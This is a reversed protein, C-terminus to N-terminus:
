CGAVTEASCRDRGLGGDARDQGPGGILLDEGIWGKLVDNGGEGYASVSQSRLPGACTTRSGDFRVHDDGTGAHVTSHCGYVVITNPGPGARILNRDFDSVYVDDFSTVKSEGGTGTSAVDELLDVKVSGSTPEDRPDGVVTIRDVDAGGHYPGSLTPGVTLRDRGGGMDVLVGGDPKNQLKAVDLRENKPGGVFRLSEWRLAFLNFADIDVLPMTADDASLAQRRNDVVWSARTRDYLQVYDRGAGGDVSGAGPLGRMLAYDVGDGLDVVDNMPHGQRGTVVTDYGDGTSITEADDEGAGANVDDSGPGGLYTDVGTGLATDVSEETGTTDVTDNGAGADVDVIRDDTFGTVCVLDDGGRADVNFAGVTVIVDPGETGDVDSGPTGLITAPQGQCTEGVAAYSTQGAGGALVLPVVLALLSLRRM